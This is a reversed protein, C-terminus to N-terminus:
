VKEEMRELAHAAAHAVGADDATTLKKLDEILDVRRTNAAIVAAKKKLKNVRAYNTGILQKLDTIEGSLLSKLHVSFPLGKCLSANVPCVTQCIDCGLIHNSLLKEYVEPIVDLESVARLCRASDVWGQSGIAGTPCADVCKRCVGCRAAFLLDSVTSNTYEFAANTVIAQVHFASGIGRIAILSNKGTSGIGYEEMLRKLPLQVNSKANFGANQLAKALGKAEKYAANSVEYYPSIVAESSEDQVSLSYTMILLIVTRADPIVSRPDQILRELSTKTISPPLFYCAAFGRDKATKIFDANTM